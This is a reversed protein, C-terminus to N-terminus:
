IILKKNAELKDHDDAEEWKRKTEKTGLYRVDKQPVYYLFMTLKKKSTKKSRNRFFTFQLIGYYTHKLLRREGLLKQKTFTVVINNLTHM